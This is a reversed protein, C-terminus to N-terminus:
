PEVHFTTMMGSEVHEAIHCHLMWRGPTDFEVLIDVAAGAPLLVTDKWARVPPAVGNVALVLFRQGHLHIPHQMAHLSARLNVLRFRVREGRRFRLALADNEAGSAPDRVFWHAQAATTAWNMGVMTGSWEVPHFYASDFTMMRETVFPLGSTRLGFELTRPPLRGAAAVAARIEPDPPLTATRFARSVADRRPAGGVVIVGLTDVEALFRGFAHDIARVRNLLAVRGPREFRVDVAYREAPALVLSEQWTLSDFRGMDAAVLRLAAGPISLNFTRANAANTIWFRVVEGPRAAGRWRPEGNVLMVNGFRGMAAHTAHEAGYPVLGDAGILLDDVLLLEERHVPPLGALGRVLINGSLGLDQQIEERVHPHYWYVGADPFRVTYDFRGGPPVAPQSLDPVGDMRWDHRLGHWHITSPLELANRFRVTITAGRPVDLLPGPSEGNFAYMVYPRGHITRRVRGAVLELTDGDALRVPRSRRVAPIVGDTAPLFAGVAPRLAMESPFMGIGPPMPVSTWRAGAPAATAGMAGHAAHPDAAAPREADLVGVLFQQFDPPQLRTSPSQGRLVLRGRRETVTDSVEASIVVVFQDFAIEPLITRGNEVAGLRVFPAYVPTTVWAVYRTAGPAIAAPAPLGALDVVPRHRHHGDRDVAVTFPSPPLTLAVTGRVGDPLGPAAVLAICYLDEDGGGGECDRRVTPASSAFVPLLLLLAARLTRM